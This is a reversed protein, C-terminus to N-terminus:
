SSRPVAGAEMVGNESLCLVIFLNAIIATPM